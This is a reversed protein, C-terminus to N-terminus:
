EFCAVIQAGVAERPDVNETTSEVRQVVSDSVFYNSRHKIDGSATQEGSEKTYMVQVSGHALFGTDVPEVEFGGQIDVNVSKISDQQVIENRSYAVEFETVYWKVPREDFSSPKEPYQTGSPESDLRPSPRIVDSASCVPEVTEKSTAEASGRQTASANTRTEGTSSSQPTSCGTLVASVVTGLFERRRNM